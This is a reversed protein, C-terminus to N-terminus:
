ATKLAAEIRAVAAAAGANAPDAPAADIEAKIADLEAKAANILNYDSQVGQLLATFYNVTPNGPAGGIGQIQNAVQAFDDIFAMAPVEGHFAAHDALVSSADYRTGSAGDVQNNWQTAISGAHIHAVYNWEADWWEGWPYTPRTSANEYIWAQYNAAQLADVMAKVWTPDPTDIGPQEIDIAVATGDGPWWAQVAALADAVGFPNQGPTIIPLVGIEAAVRQAFAPSVVTAPASWNVVYLGVARAGLGKADEVLVPSSPPFAIDLLDPM